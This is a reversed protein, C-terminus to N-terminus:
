LLNKEIKKLKSLPKLPRYIYMREIKHLANRMAKKDLKAM